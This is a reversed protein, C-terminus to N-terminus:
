IQMEGERRGAKRYSPDAEGVEGGFVQAGGAAGHARPRARLLRACRRRLGLRRQMDARAAHALHYRDLTGRQMVAEIAALGAEPGDRMGLAVARNLAVVPSPDIRCLVDYLGVIQPWDTQAINPAEATSM